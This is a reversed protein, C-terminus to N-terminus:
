RFAQFERILKLGERSASNLRSSSSFLNNLFKLTGFPEILLFYLFVYMTQVALIELMEYNPTVM